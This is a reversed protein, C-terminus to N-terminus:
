LKEQFSFWVKDDNRHMVRYHLMMLKTNVKLWWSMMMMEVLMRTTMYWSWWWRSWWSDIVRCCCACIVWGDNTWENDCILWTDDISWCGNVIVLVDCVHKLLTTTDDADDYWVCASCVCWITTAATGGPPPTTTTENNLWENKRIFSTKRRQFM